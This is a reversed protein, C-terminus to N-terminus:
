FNTTRPHIRTESVTSRTEHRTRSRGYRARARHSRAGTEAPVRLVVVFLAAEGSPASTPRPFLLRSQRDNPCSRESERFATSRKPLLTASPTEATEGEQLSECDVRVDLGWVADADDHHWVPHEEESRSQKRQTAQQGLTKRHSGAAAPSRAPAAFTTVVQSRTCTPTGLAPLGHLHSSGM